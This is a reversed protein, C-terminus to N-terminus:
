AELRLAMLPCADVGEEARKRLEAPVERGSEVASYGDDTLPFLTADLANCLQHGECRGSDVYLRM